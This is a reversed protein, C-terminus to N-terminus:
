DLDLFKWNKLNRPDYSYKKSDNYRWSNKDKIVIGGFLKKSKKNEAAIYEALGEACETATKAYIGGKTDFLCLRGDTLMVVFDLYFLKEQENEVYPVAFFSGDQKGNKFWWQVQKAKELYEIFAVEIESDEEFLSLNNTGRTKAFYPQMVSKKYEKRAFFKEYNIAKPVNWPNDNQIVEKKGKGVKEQYLELAKNITNTVRQKLADDSLVAAQIFPWQDEDRRAGFVTYISDNIRKISRTEPAFDGLNDRVFMDFAFQLEGETKPITFTPAKINGIAVDPNKVSVDKM